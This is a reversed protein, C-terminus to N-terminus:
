AFQLSLKKKLQGTTSAGPIKNVTSDFLYQISSPVGSNKDTYTTRRTKDFLRAFAGFVTPVFQTAYGEAARMAVDAVGNESYSAASLLSNM